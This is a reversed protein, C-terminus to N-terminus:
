QVIMQQKLTEVKASDFLKEVIALAFEMATGPGQSTLCNGDILVRPPNKPANTLQDLFAPYCTAQKNQLLGHKELVCAPSACIAGYLKQQAKQNKLLSILESSESLNDAGPLGGPVVILDFSQKSCSQIHCDATINIQHAGTIALRSAYISAITVEAEARRLVDILTIAEIEEIGDALPILVHKKM